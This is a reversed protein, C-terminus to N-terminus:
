DYAFYSSFDILTYISYIALYYEDLVCNQSFINYTINYENHQYRYPNNINLM